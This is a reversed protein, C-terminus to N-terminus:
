LCVQVNGVKMCFDSHLVFSVDVPFSDDGVLHVSELIDFNLSSEVVFFKVLYRGFSALFERLYVGFSQCLCASDRANRWAVDVDHKYQEASLLWM